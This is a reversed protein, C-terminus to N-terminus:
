FWLFAYHRRIVFEMKANKEFNALKENKKIKKFGNGYYSIRYCESVHRKDPSM